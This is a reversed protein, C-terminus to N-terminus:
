RCYSTYSLSTFSRELDDLLRFLSKRVNHLPNCISGVISDKITKKSKKNLIKYIANYTELSDVIFSMFKKREAPTKDALGRDDSSLRSLAIFM